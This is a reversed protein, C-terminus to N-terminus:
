YGDSKAINQDKKYLENYVFGRNRLNDKIHQPFPMMRWFIGRVDKDLKQMGQSEKNIWLAYDRIFYERVDGRLRRESFWQYYKGTIGEEMWYYAAKEKAVQWRLDAMATLVALPVSKTPFIPIAVRGRSTARNFKEFPEWCVGTDGYCALLIINPVIRTTQSKYTRLFLGPDLAEVQAMERIVNERTGIERINPKVFQALFIPFHNGQRGVCMKAMQRISGWEDIVAKADVVGSASIGETKHSLSELDKEINALDAYSTAIQADLGSLQRLVEQIQALAAKQAQNFPAKLGGYEEMHEHRLLMDMQGRLQEEREDLQGIKARLIALESDRQGRRKEVADLIKQGTDKTRQKVEDIASPRVQGRAILELWEDAYYVPEGTTNGQIIRSVMERLEPSLFGPSLIGYRLFLRKPTILERNARYAVAAGLEWFASILQARFHSKEEPDEAKMYKGLLEHVRTGSEGEGSLVKKYFDKDQFYPKPDEELKVIIPFSKKTTDVQETPPKEAAQPSKEEGFLTRFDPKGDGPAAEPAPKPTEIDLLEALDPDLESQATSEKAKDDM